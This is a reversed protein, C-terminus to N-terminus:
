VTNFLNGQINAQTRATSENVMPIQITVSTPASINPAQVIKVIKANSARKREAKAHAQKFHLLCFGNHRMKAQTLCKDQKCLKPIMPRLSGEELADALRSIYEQATFINAKGKVRARQQATSYRNNCPDSCFKPEWGLKRAHTIREKAIDRGCQKCDM